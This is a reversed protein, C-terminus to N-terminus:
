LLGAFARDRLGAFLEDLEALQARQKAKLQRVCDIKKSFEDQVAIDPCSFTIGELMSQNVKYTGNTTRALSEIQSRVGPSNWMHELFMPRVRKGSVPAAIITDPFATDLMSETPFRGRGVLSLNGNGRCILFCSDKVRQGAAPESLFMGPKVAEPNFEDGTISSLTLVMARIHGRGSPSVGNRLPASIVMGLSQTPWDRPSSTSRDFMEVFISHALKSLNALARRRKARLEDVRDLVDAIRRQEDVSCLPIRMGLLSEQSVTAQNVWQRCMARFQGQEFKM